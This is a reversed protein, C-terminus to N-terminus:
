RARNVLFWYMRTLQLSVQEILHRVEQIGASQGVLSRFLTNDRASSVVQVGKRGSTKVTDWHM